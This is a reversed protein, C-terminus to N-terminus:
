RDQDRVPEVHERQATPEPVARCRDREADVAVQELRVVARGRDHLLRELPSIWSSATKSAMLLLWPHLSWDLGIIENALREFECRREVVLQPGPCAGSIHGSLLPLRQHPADVLACVLQREQRLAQVRSRETGIRHWNASRERALGSIQRALRRLGFM